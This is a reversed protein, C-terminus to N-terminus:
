QSCRLADRWTPMISGAKIITNSRYKSIPLRALIEIQHTGSGHALYFKLPRKDLPKWHNEIGGFITAMKDKDRLTNSLYAYMNQHYWQRQPLWSIAVTGPFRRGPAGKVLM